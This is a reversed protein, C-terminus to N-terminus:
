SGSAALRPASKPFDDATLRGPARDLFTRCWLEFSILTWLEIDCGRGRRHMRLLREIYGPDFIGRQRSRSSLLLDRVFSALKGRFWHELPVGFGQKPRDIIADPLIGRMAQKFIHKTAGGRLKLEPPITATFEVLKHDLLPVRAEISCAMSMRDVKTLIDLPLYTKIDLYQAASLWGGNGQPFGKYASNRPEFGGLMELIEPRLMARKDRDTFLVVSDLYRDAGALSYHYVLNRGKMGLPMLGAALRLAKRVPYPVERRREKEEVVYKDYGGFIEDGGDGSLVVKVHESALKSVMYTPICSPDGLPEDLYWALEDIIGLADPELVLEHHETGFRRAVTRAHELENYRIEQFGISFTKVPSSILRAMTAVVSSSDIGGSLFAGLPVDSILRLRVSEKLLERLREVFYDENRTYDPAFHIDWYREVVPKRGRAAILIHGPELKHVGHMISEAAPTYQSSLLYSLSKWDLKRETEPLQLIAKLESAFLLREGSEAYYLPKIGLRDRALLLTKKREDWVAFTFMGRLREVCRPGYEEYLHVIVETDTSTYFAHGRRELDQRLDKFNYIEGNFVVWVSGDENRVPQHGTALDIISLRRMGLGVGAGVYFGEDDPGRHIISRCMRGLEEEAVPKDGLSMIGAIGCM